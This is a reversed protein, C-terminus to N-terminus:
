KIEGELDACAQNFADVHDSIDLHTYIQTTQIDSHRSFIKAAAIGLKKVMQTIFVHRMQHPPWYEVKAIDAYKRFLKRAGETTYKDGLRSEFIYKNRPHQHIHAKLEDRIGTYIPIIAEKGGKGILRINNEEWNINAPTLSTLEAIRLGSFLFLKAMLKFKMDNEADIAALFKKLDTKSPLHPLRKRKEQPKLNTAKRANSVAVNFYEYTPQHKKILRILEKELSM